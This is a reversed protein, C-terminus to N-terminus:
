ADCRAWSTGYNFRLSFCLVCCEIWTPGNTPEDEITGDADSARIATPNWVRVMDNDRLCKAKLAKKWHFLVANLFWPSINAYDPIETLCWRRLVQPKVLSHNLGNNGSISLGPIMTVQCRVAGSVVTSTLSGCVGSLNWDSVWRVASRNNQVSAHWTVWPRFRIPLPLLYNSEVWRNEFKDCPFQM